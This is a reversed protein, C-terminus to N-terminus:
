QQLELSVSQTGQLPLRTGCRRCFAADTQHVSLGCAICPLSPQAGPLSDAAGMVTPEEEQLAKALSSLQYPILTIAALMELSVLLRGNATMPVIDGLGVTTLVSFSFYLADTYMAMGPNALHEVEWMLGASVFVISLVTFVIRAIERQYAAIESGFIARSLAASSDSDLVYRLLRLIRLSRLLRLISLGEGVDSSLMDQTRSLMETRLSEDAADLVAASQQLLPAPLSSGAYNDLWPPLLTLLDILMQPSLAFSLSFGSAWLRVVYELSLAAAASLEIASALSRESALIASSDQAKFGFALVLVLTAVASALEFLPSNVLAQLRADTQGKGLPVITDALGDGVTDVLVSDAFGDGNTDVLQGPRWPVRPENTVSAKQPLESEPVCARLPRRRELCPSNSRQLLLAPSQLLASCAVLSWLPMAM